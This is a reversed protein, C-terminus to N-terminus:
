QKEPATADTTPATSESEDNTAATVVWMQMM